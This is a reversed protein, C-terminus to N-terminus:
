PLDRAVRIGLAVGRYQANGQGRIAVRATWAHSNWGGGRPMRTTCGAREVPQGDTPVGEYTPTACGEVMEWANGVMDYLGFGNPPYRGVADLFTKTVPKECDAEVAGVQDGLERATQRDYIKAHDCIAAASDGWPYTTTSGGRAAYEWETESLLRYPKGTKKALWAVFAKADPYNMCVVPEDPGQPFGPDRWSLEPHFPWQGTKPDFGYCGPQTVTDTEVIYRAYMARTVEYRGVAIPKPITVDIRVVERDAFVKPIAFRAREEATSGLTARGAPIVVMEPCDRCDKFTDGPKMASADAAFAPLACAAALTCALAALWRKLGRRSM